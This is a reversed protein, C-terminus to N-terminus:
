RLSQAGADVDKERGAARGLVVRWAHQIQEAAPEITQSLLEFGIWLEHM